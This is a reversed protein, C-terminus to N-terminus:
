GAPVKVGLALPVLQDKEGLGLKLPVTVRLPPSAPMSIRLSLAPVKVKALVEGVTLREEGIVWLLCDPERQQLAEVLSEVMM